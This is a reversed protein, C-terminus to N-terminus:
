QKEMTKTAVGLEVSLKVVMRLENARCQANWQESVDNM